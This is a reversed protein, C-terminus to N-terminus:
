TYASSAAQAEFFLRRDPKFNAQLTWEALHYVTKIYIEYHLYM